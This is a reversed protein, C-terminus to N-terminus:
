TGKEEEFSGYRFSHIAVMMNNSAAPENFVFFFPSVGSMSYM